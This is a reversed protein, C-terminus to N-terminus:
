LHIDRLVGVGVYMELNGMEINNNTYFFFTLAHMWATKSRMLTELETKTISSCLSMHSVKNQLTLSLSNPPTQSLELLELDAFFLEVVVKDLWVDELEVLKLDV